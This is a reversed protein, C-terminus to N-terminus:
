VKEKWVGASYKKSSMDSLEEYKRVLEVLKEDIKLSLPCSENCVFAQPITFSVSSKNMSDSYPPCLCAQVQATVDIM